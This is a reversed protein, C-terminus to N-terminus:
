NGMILGLEFVFSKGNYVFGSGMQSHETDEYALRGSSSITTTIRNDDIDM